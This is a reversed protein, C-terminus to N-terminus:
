ITQLYRQFLSLAKQEDIKKYGINDVTKKIEHAIYGRGDEYYYEIGEMIGKVFAGPASPNAVIDSAAILRFDNQVEMIGSQNSRLSGLARSSVGLKSGGEILAQAIKGMPTDLLKARGYAINDKHMELKETLHSVRDLNIKPGEPHELEGYAQGNKIVDNVYRNIEREMIDRKYIRGNANVKEAVMFPGEIFTFKKGDERAETIYQVDASHETILLM